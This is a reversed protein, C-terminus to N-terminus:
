SQKVPGFVLRRFRSRSVYGNVRTRGHLWYRDSLLYGEGRQLKIKWQVERLRAFVVDRWPNKDSYLLAYFDDFSDRGNRVSLIQCLRDHMSNPFDELARTIQLLQTIPLFLSQGSSGNAVRDFILFLNDTAFLDAHLPFGNDNREAYVPPNLASKPNGTIHVVGARLLTMLKHLRASTFPAELAATLLHFSKGLSSGYLMQSFELVRAALRKGVRSLSYSYSCDYPECGSVAIRRPTPLRDIEGAYDTVFRLIM